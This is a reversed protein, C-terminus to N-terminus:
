QPKSVGFLERSTALLTEDGDEGAVRMRTTPAHLLKNTLTTTVWALVEDADRGAALMRRAHEQVETSVVGAQHRVERIVPVADLLKLNREFRTVENDVIKVAARAAQERLRMNDRVVEELDDVTYLYIDSLEGVEPAVDRPVALDVIFIPKRKRAKVAKQVLPADLIPQPSATSCIVMDAEALHEGIDSLPIAFASLSDALRRAREASRNAFIMRRLGRSRLHRAALEITQGAGVFLATQRSFDSFISSALSVSASAVSVASAGIGTDSRVQKAVSFAQQFLRNLVPGVAGHEGALRYADKVQGLIQPEGLVMSDLGCAVRFAHRIADGQAKTFLSQDADGGLSRTERLWDNAQTSGDDAGVVYLETRNCTSVIMGEQVDPLSVLSRLADPIGAPDFSVRERVALPATHHNLGLVYLSM